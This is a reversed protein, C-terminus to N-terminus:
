ATPNQADGALERRIQDGAASALMAAAEELADAGPERRLAEALDDPTELPGGALAEILCALLEAAGQEDHDIRNMRMAQTVIRELVRNKFKQAVAQADGNAFIRGGQPDSIARVAIVGSLNATGAKAMKSIEEAEAPTLFRLLVEEGGWEPIALPEPPCCSECRQWIDDKNTLAM